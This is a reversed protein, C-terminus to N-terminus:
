ITRVYLKYLDGDNMTAVEVFGMRKWYNHTNLSEYVSAMVYNCSTTKKFEYILKKDLGNGRFRPDILFLVGEAGVSSKFANLDTKQDVIEAEDLIDQIQRDSVLLIGILEGNISAAISKSFDVDAFAISLQSAWEPMLKQSFNLINEFGYESASGLIFDSQNQSMKYIIM